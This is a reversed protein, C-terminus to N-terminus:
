RESQAGDQALMPDLVVAQRRVHPDMPPIGELANGDKPLVDEPVAGLLTSVFQFRAPPITHEKATCPVRIGIEYSHKIPSNNHGTSHDPYDGGLSPVGLSQKTDRASGHTEVRSVEVINVCSLVRVTPGSAVSLVIRIHLVKICQGPAHGNEHTVQTFM